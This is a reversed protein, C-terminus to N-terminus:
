LKFHIAMLYAMMKMEGDYKNDRIGVLTDSAEQLFVKNHLANVSALYRVFDSQHKLLSKVADANDMLGEFEESCRAVLEDENATGWNGNLRGRGYNEAIDVFETILDRNNM